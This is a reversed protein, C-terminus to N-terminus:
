PRSEILVALIPLVNKRALCPASEPNSLALSPWERRLIHRIQLLLCVHLHLLTQLSPPLSATERSLEINIKPSIRLIRRTLSKLPLPRSSLVRRVLHSTIIYGRM